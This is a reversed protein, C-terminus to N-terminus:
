PVSGSGRTEEERGADCDDELDLVFRASCRWEDAATREEELDATAEDEDERM